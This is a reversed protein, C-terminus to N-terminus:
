AREYIEGRRLPKMPVTNRGQLGALLRRARDRRRVDEAAPSAQLTHDLGQIVLERLTTKRQAAAVKAQLLLDDPLDITTKM